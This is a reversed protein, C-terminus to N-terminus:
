TNQGESSGQAAADGDREMAEAIARNIFATTSEHNAQAHAQVESRREPTMRVKVEVFRSMYKKKARKQADTTKKPTSM